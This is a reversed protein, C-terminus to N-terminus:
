QEKHQLNYHVRGKVRNVWYRAGCHPCNHNRRNYPSLQGTLPLINKRECKKCNFTLVNDSM